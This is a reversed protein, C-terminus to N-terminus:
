TRSGYPKEVGQEILLKLGRLYLAWCYSTRKFHANANKWAIHSFSLLMFDQNTNLDFRLYTGTWDADAFTMKWEIFSNKKMDTVVARWDYNEGFYFTFEEGISDIGSSRLTWWRDLYEPSVIANYLEERNCVIEVDHLIRYM